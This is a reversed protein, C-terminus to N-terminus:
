RGRIESLTSAVAQNLFDDPSMSRDLMKPFLDDPAQTRQRLMDFSTPAVASVSTPQPHQSEYAAAAIRHDIIGNDVMFKEVKELGEEQYGEAKLAARGLAWKEEAKARTTATTAEAAATERAKKEDAIEQRLAAISDEMPKSADLEPIPADPNLLKQAELIKRRAAPNSNLAANVFQAVKLLEPNDRKLALYENEDVEITPM